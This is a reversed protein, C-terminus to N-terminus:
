KPPSHSIGIEDVALGHHLKKAEVDVDYKCRTAWQIRTHVFLPQNRKAREIRHVGDRNPWPISTFNRITFAYKSRKQAVKIIRSKHEM